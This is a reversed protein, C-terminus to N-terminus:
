ETLGAIRRATALTDAEAVTKDQRVRVIRPFRMALGSSHRQSPQLLDFAIELVVDPEVAFYRGKQWVTKKLFHQTLQAIEVDTLGTYAKGITKLEGSKEDRVAFTYDSLVARRKGHGYEAAVVVCDLTAYAKKLKLWALGRRGPIYTSEPDKVILGENNRARAATFAAEIEEESTARTIQALRFEAGVIQELQARREELSKEILNEGNRWLLDFAMFQAPIQERMFLDAERRGLRKQLEAYPLVQDGRMAIIEGDCIFDDPLRRAADALEEFSRTIEKLDRSYIAATKGVKHVQARIGDYKDEVWVTVRPAPVEMPLSDLTPPPVHGDRVRRWIDAATEEPSALMYKVARFPMLTVSPLQKHSALVATEGINGVLLNVHKIEDLSSEFSKAIAEEVLGEKLGIRLDGTLIKILYKAELPTCRALANVLLPLKALPGRAGHLQELLQQVSTISERSGTERNVRELMEFGAEGLDSHKLYVQGFASQDLGSVACLADRIVAWGLQLTKNHSPPFANGTFWVTALGLSSSELQKLYQSLIATKELKKTTRSILSCTEAFKYFSESEKIPEGPARVVTAVVAARGSKASTIALPLALQDEQSLPQADFGVDRLTQAFEAAFGHLTFIKKPKVQKVFELLDPFDAHDSLPFAAHAQYRFRCNPDVAWGTLVAVRTRGLNRLMATGAVNPPALLVKGRASDADYKEYPPFCQGFQEYIKTLKHVTGHLMIPLGADGLGCLLEQSKGLSYGLLVPTEDNDLAERCFRIVGKIVEETPPFQYHPRGYTTEMILVDAQRPECKEASLGTRLKFDGTYLLTENGAQIWSMASGFIHGAPLLTIECSQEGGSFQWPKHFPLVHELWEGTMRARMLQSTPQSVIIAKHIGTHDSHAHSIFVTGDPQPEHADLWLGLKPLYVGGKHFQLKFASM